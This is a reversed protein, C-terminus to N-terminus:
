ILQNRFPQKLSSLLGSVYSVTILTTHHPPDLFWWRVFFHMIFFKVPHERRDPRDLVIQKVKHKHKDCHHLVSQKLSEIDMPIADM